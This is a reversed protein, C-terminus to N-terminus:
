STKAMVYVIKLRGHEGINEPRDNINSINREMKQKQNKMLKRKGSRNDGFDWPLWPVTFLIGVIIPFIPCPL